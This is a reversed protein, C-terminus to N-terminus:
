LDIMLMKIKDKKFVVEIEANSSCADDYSYYGGL